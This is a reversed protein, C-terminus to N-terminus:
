NQFYGRPFLAIHILTVYLWSLPFNIVYIYLLYLSSLFSVLIVILVQYFWLLLKYLWRNWGFGLKFKQWKIQGTGFNQPGLGGKRGMGGM